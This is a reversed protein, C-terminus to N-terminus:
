RASQCLTWRWRATSTLSGPRDQQLAQICGRDCRDPIQGASLVPFAFVGDQDTTATLKAGTQANTIVVTAGPIVSGSQDKLVRTIKGGFQARATFAMVFVAFLLFVINKKARHM